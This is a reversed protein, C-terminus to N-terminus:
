PLETVYFYPGGQEPNILISGGGPTTLEVCLMSDAIPGSGFHGGEGQLCAFVSRDMESMLTDFEESSVEVTKVIYATAILGPRDYYEAGCPMRLFEMPPEIKDIHLSKGDRLLIAPRRTFANTKAKTNKTM